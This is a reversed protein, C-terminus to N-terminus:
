STVESDSAFDEDLAICSPHVPECFLHSHWELWWLDYLHFTFSARTWEHLYLSPLDLGLQFVRSAEMEESIGERPKM